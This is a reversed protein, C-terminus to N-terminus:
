CPFTQARCPKYPKTLLAWDVTSYVSSSGNSGSTYGMAAFNAMIPGGSDGLVSAISMRNLHDIM